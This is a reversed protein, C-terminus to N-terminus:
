KLGARPLTLGVPRGSNDLLDERFEHLAVSKCVIFGARKTATLFGTLQWQFIGSRKQNPETAWSTVLLVPVLCGLWVIPPFKTLLPSAIQNSAM